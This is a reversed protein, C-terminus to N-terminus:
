NLSQKVKNKFTSIRGQWGRVLYQFTKANEQASSM